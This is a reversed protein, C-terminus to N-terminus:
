FTELSALSSAGGRVVELLQRMMSEIASLRDASARSASAVKGMSSSSSGSSSGGSAFRAGDMAARATAKLADYSGAEIGDVLGQQVGSAVSHKVSEELPKVAGVAEIEKFGEKFGEIAMTAGTALLQKASLGKQFVEIQRQADLFDDAIREALGKMPTVGHKEYIADATTDLWTTLQDQAEEIADAWDERFIGVIKKCIWLFPGSLMAYLQVFRIGIMKIADRWDVRFLGVIGGISEGLTQLARVFTLCFAKSNEWTKMIALDVGGFSEDAWQLISGLCNQWVASFSQGVLAFANNANTALTVTNDSAVPIMAMVTDLSQKFADPGQRLLPALRLGQEEMGRQLVLLRAQEDPIKSVIDLFGTFAEEPKLGRLHSVDVGLKELAKLKETNVLTANLKQMSAVLGETTINIGAQGMAGTFKQLWTASTGAQQAIDNLKNLQDLSAGIKKAAAGVALAIAGFKLAAGIKAQSTKARQAVSDFAKKTADKGQLEMRVSTAAAM